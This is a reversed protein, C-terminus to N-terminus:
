EKEGTLAKTVLYYVVDVVAGVAVGVATAVELPLGFRTAVFAVVAGTIYGKIQQKFDFKM